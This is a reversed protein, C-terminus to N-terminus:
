IQGALGYVFTPESSDTWDQPTKGVQRVEIDPDVYKLRTSIMGMEEVRDQNCTRIKRIEMEHTSGRKSHYTM